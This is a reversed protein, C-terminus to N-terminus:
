GRGRERRPSLLRAPKLNINTADLAFESKKGGGEGERERERERKMRKKKITANLLANLSRISAIRCSYVNRGRELANAVGPIIYSPACKFRSVSELADRHSCM